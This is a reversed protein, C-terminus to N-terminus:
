YQTGRSATRAEGPCESSSDSSSSNTHGYENSNDRKNRIGSSSPVSSGQGQLFPCNRAMHGERRCRYCVTSQFPQARKANGLAICQGTSHGSSRHYECWINPAPLGQPICNSGVAAVPAAIRNQRIYPDHRRPDQSHHDSPLGHKIGHRNNWLRQATEALQMASCDEKLVLFDRMWFPIGSLFVRRVLESPEGIAERHDRCGQYVSGEIQLFYDMPAQTDGMTQDYLVKFFDAASYTGRFKRRLHQKFVSWDEIRDFCESNIIAEARGRCNARASRIYSDSSSPRVINEIARIWSEIEQNRKLPNSAPAEGRFHPVTERTMIYSIGQNPATVPPSCTVPESHRSLNHGGRSPLRPEGSGQPLGENGSLSANSLQQEARRRRSREGQLEGELEALRRQLSALTDEHAPSSETVRGYDCAPGNVNSGSIGRTEPVDRSANDTGIRDGEDRGFVQPAIYRRTTDQVLDRDPREAGSSEGQGTYRQEMDVIRKTLEDATRQLFIDANRQIQDMRKTILDDVRDCLQEMVSIEAEMVRVAQGVEPNSGGVVVPLTDLTASTERVPSTPQSVSQATTKVKKARTGTVMKSDILVSSELIDRKRKPM